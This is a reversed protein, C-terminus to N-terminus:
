GKLAGPGDPAKRVHALEQLTFHVPPMSSGDARRIRLTAIIVQRIDLEPDGRAAAAVRYRVLREFDDIPGTAHRAEQIRRRDPTVLYRQGNPVSIVFSESGLSGDRPGGVPADAGCGWVLFLTSILICLTKM